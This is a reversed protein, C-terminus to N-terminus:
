RGAGGTQMQTADSLTMLFSILDDIQSDKLGMDGVEGTVNDPIEPPPWAGTDRTNHFDIISKLTPFLGNHGYPATVAVNRLTPVKFKGNQLAHQPDNILSRDGQEYDTKLFGGLGYDAQYGGLLEVLLPNIPLGLNVYGYNTFLEPAEPQLARSSHCQACNTAFLRAGRREKATLHGQDYKSSFKQVEESREYAAIAHGVYDYATLVDDLSGPGFYQLFLDAYASDRVVRVVDEESEWAMEVPNLPPGQAQEALPDGLVRGTARGDWFMGGVYGGVAANWGL